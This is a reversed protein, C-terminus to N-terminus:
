VIQSEDSDPLEEDDDGYAGGEDESDSMDKLIDDWKSYSASIGGGPKRSTPAKAGAGAGSGSSSGSSSACTQPNSASSPNSKRTSSTSTGSTTSAPAAAPGPLTTQINIGGDKGAGGWTVSSPAELRTVRPQPRAQEAEDDSVDLNDWRSYDLRAM